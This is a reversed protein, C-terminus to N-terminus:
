TTAISMSGASSSTARSRRASPPHRITVKPHAVGKLKNIERWPRCIEYENRSREVANGIPRMQRTRNPDSQLGIPAESNDIPMLARAFLRGHQAFRAPGLSFKPYRRVLGYFRDHGTAKPMDRGDIHGRIAIAREEFRSRGSRGGMKLLLFAESPDTKRPSRCPVAQFDSSIIRQAPNM